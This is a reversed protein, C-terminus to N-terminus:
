RRGDVGPDGVGERGQLAIDAGESRGIEPFGDTKLGDGRSRVSFSRHDLKCGRPASTGGPVSHAGAGPMEGGGLGAVDRDGGPKRARGGQIDSGHRAKEAKNWTAGSLSSSALIPCFASCSNAPTRQPSRSWIELRKPRFCAKTRM